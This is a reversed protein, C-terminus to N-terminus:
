LKIQMDTYNVTGHCCCGCTDCCSRCCDGSCSCSCSNPGCYCNVSCQKAPHSEENLKVEVKSQQQAKKSQGFGFSSLGDYLNYSRVPSEKASNEKNIDVEINSTHEPNKDREIVGERSLGVHSYISQATMALVFVFIATAGM